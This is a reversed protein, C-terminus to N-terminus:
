PDCGHCQGLSPWQGAPSRLMESVPRYSLRYDFFRPFDMGWIQFYRFITPCALIVWIKIFWAPPNTFQRFDWSSAMLPFAYDGAPLSLLRLMKACRVSFRPALWMQTEESENIQLLKLYGVWDVIFWVELQAKLKCARGCRLRQTYIYIYVYVYVYVYVYMYIHILIHKSCYTRLIYPTYIYIYYLNIYYLKFFYTYYLIIYYLVIYYFIIYYSITYCLIIYYLVVYYLMICCVMIYCLIVDYYLM